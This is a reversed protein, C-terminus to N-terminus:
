GTFYFAIVGSNQKLRQPACVTFIEDYELILLEVIKVSDAMYMIDAQPKNILIPGFVSALYHATSENVNGNAILIRCCVNSLCTISGFLIYRFFSVLANLTM